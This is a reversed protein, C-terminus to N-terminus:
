AKKRRVFGLGALGLGLLALSSPVPVSATIDLGNLRVFAGGIGDADAVEETIEFSLIGAASSTFTGLGSNMFNSTPDSLRDWTIDVNSGTGIIPSFTNTMDTAWSPAGDFRDSSFFRIDYQNNADLGSM